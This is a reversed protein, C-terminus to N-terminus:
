STSWWSGGATAASSTRAESWRGSAAGGKWCSPRITLSWGLGLYVAVPIGVCTIALFGVALGVCLGAVSLSGFHGLAERYADRINIPQGLVTNSAIRVIAGTAVLQAVLTAIWIAFMVLGVAIGAGILAVTAERSLSEFMSQGFGVGLGLVIGGGTLLLTSPVLVVAMTTVLPVFGRRYVQFTEDLVDGVDLPRLRSGRGGANMAM